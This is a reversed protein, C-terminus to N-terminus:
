LKYVVKNRGEDKARYLHEDALKYIDKEDIINGSVISVLGFSATLVKHEANAKHEINLQQINKRLKQAFLYAEDKNTTKYLVGFEEGGLRFCFDEARNLSDKLAKAISILAIDGKTHGYTDNYLKFNDVDLIIFNLCGVSRHIARTMRPFIENFHRRNYISTLGDVILLGENVKKDTIDHMISHFTIPKNDEVVSQITADVWYINGNKMKNKLEGSWYGDSNLNEFIKDYINIPVNPDKFVEHSKGILEEKKYGSIECFRDSVGLVIGDIDTNVVMLHKEIMQNYQSADSYSNELNKIGKNFGMNIIILTLIVLALLSLMINLKNNEFSNVSNAIDKFFEFKAVTNNKYDKIEFNIKLTNDNEKLGYFISIDKLTKDVLVFKIGKEYLLVGEINAYYNLDKLIYRPDIGLEIAGIYNSGDMIPQIINYIVEGNIKDYGAFYRGKVYARNFLKKNDSLSKKKPYKMNLLVSGDALRFNMIKLYPNEKLFIKYELLSLSYLKEKDRTKIAEKIDLPLNNLFTKNEYFSKYKIITKDFLNKIEKKYSDQTIKIERQKEFSFISLTAILFLVLVMTIFILTKNKVSL